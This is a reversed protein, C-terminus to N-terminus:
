RGVEEAASVLASAQMGLGEALRTLNLFGVNREGREVGGVYNRHLGTMEALREQSWGKSMRAERVALGLSRLDPQQLPTDAM